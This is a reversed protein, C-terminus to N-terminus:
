SFDNASSELYQLKMLLGAFLWIYVNAPDRDIMTGKFSNLFMTVLYALLGASCARLPGSTLRRHLRYGCVILSLFIGVVVILGLVGLEYSAKAYYNEIGIFSDPLDLAYRAPGTNTGTGAGLPAVLVAQALGGYAIDHMYTMFLESVIAYLRSGTTQLIGLAVLFVGALYAGGRMIGGFGKELGFMLILLLPVFVFAARAGSLLAALAVVIMGAGGVLRWRRSADGRWLAYLPVLMALTYSFYQTVFVFTSPIRPYTGGGIDTVTYRQTAHYAADGYIATMTEEYGAVQVLILEAIGVLAPVFALLALFRMLSFLQATSNVLAYALFLLPVYFLWVKAGILAMMVNTVGPNFSQVVVLSGLIILLAAPLKPLGRLSEKKLCLSTLFGVYAPLLFLVDKFLLPTKAPYLALTVVGAFPLYALLGYMGRQWRLGIFIYLGLLSMVSICLLGYGRAAGVGLVVASSIVLMADVGPSLRGSYGKLADRAWFLHGSCLAEIAKM